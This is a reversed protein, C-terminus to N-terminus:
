RAARRRVASGSTPIAVEASYASPGRANWARVRVTVVTARPLSAFSLTRGATGGAELWEGGPLRYEVTYGRDSPGGNWAVERANASTIVPAAPPALVSTAATWEGVVAFDYIEGSSGQSITTEGTLLDIRAMSRSGGIWAIRGNADLTSSHWANYPARAYEAIMEGTSNYRLVTEESTALLGGDPLIRISSVYRLLTQLFPPLPQRRCVDYRGIATGTLYFLTCQDAALDASLVSGDIAIRALERGNRQLIVIGEGNALYLQGVADYFITHTYDPVPMRGMSRGSTDYISAEDYSDVVVLRGSPDLAAAVNLAYHLQKVYTLDSRQWDLSFVCEVYGICFGSHAVILDQQQFTQGLLPTAALFLILLLRRLM